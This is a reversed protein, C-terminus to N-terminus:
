DKFFVDLKSKQGDEKFEPCRNKLEKTFADTDKPKCLALRKTKGATYYVKVKNEQLLNVFGDTAKQELNFVAEYPITAVKLSLQWVELTTETFHYKEPLIGFATLYLGIGFLPLILFWMDLGYFIQNYLFVILLLADCAVAALEGRGIEGSMILRNDKQMPCLITALWM